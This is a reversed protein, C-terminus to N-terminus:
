RTPGAMKGDERSVLEALAEGAAARVAPDEHGIALTDLWSRAEPGGLDAVIRAIQALDRGGRRHGLEILPMVARRDGIEALAGIARDAAGLDDDSLAQVLGPVAAPSRRDALARLARDRVRPNDSELDRMLDAESKGGQALRESVGRAADALAGRLARSFVGGMGVEGPGLAGEGTGSERVPSSGGTGSLELTVAVRAGAAGGAGSSVASVEDVVVRVLRRDAGEPVRADPPLFAAGEALAQLAAAGIESQPVGMRRFQASADTDAVVIRDIARPPASRCAAGTLGFAAAIAILTARTPPVTRRPSILAVGGRRRGLVAAAGERRSAGRLSLDV